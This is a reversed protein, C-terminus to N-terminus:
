RDEPAGEEHEGRAEDRLLAILLLLAGIIVVAVVVQGSSAIPLM